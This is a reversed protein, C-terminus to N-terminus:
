LHGRDRQFRDASGRGLWDMSRCNYNPNTNGTSATTAASSADVVVGKAQNICDQAATNIANSTVTAGSVADVEASQSDLIAKAFDEGIAGGISETENSVDV